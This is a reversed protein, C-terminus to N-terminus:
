DYRVVFSRLSPWKVWNSLLYPDYLPQNDPHLGAITFLPTRDVTGPETSNMAVLLDASAQLSLETGFGTRRGIGIFTWYHYMGGTRASAVEDDACGCRLAEAGGGGCEGQRGGM